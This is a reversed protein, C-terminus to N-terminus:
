GGPVGVWMPECVVFRGQAHPGAGEPLSEKRLSLRARAGGAKKPITTKSLGAKEPIRAGEKECASSESGAPEM